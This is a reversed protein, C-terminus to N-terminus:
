LRLPLRMRKFKESVLTWGQRREDLTIVCALLIAVYVFQVLIRACLSGLGGMLGLWTLALLTLLTVVGLTALRTWNHPVPYVRQTMRLALALEFAFAFFTAAAAGELGFDRILAINLIVKVLGGSCIVLTAYLTRCVISFGTMVSFVYSHVAFSIAIWPIIAVAHSYGESPALIRLMEPGFASLTIALMGMAAALLRLVRAFVRPADPENAVRYAAPAYATQLAQTLFQIMMGAKAGIAYVALHEAGVWERIFYRDSVTLVAVGIGAPVLPLGFELLPKLLRTNVRFGMWARCLHFGALSMAALGVLEGWLIGKVACDFGLVLVLIVVPGTAARVLNLTTYLTSREQARFWSLPLRSLVTVAGSLAVLRLLGAHESTGYVVRSLTGAYGLAAALLVAQLLVTFWLCTTFLEKREADTEFRHYYRLLAASIGLDLIPTVFLITAMSLDWNAVDSKPLVRTYFPILLVAIGRSALTGTAYVATHWLTKKVIGMWAGRSQVRTLRVIGHGSSEFGRLM